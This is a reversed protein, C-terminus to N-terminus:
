KVPPVYAWVRVYDIIFYDPLVATVIPGEGWADPGSGFNGIEESLIIHAPARGVGGSTTRWTLVNDTFFEYRDPYWDVRFVHWGGDNLNRGATKQSDSQHAAGYGDWHLAHQICDTEWAKEMVDIETGDKGSGDVRSVTDPLLWFACWHGHEKPFKVRAEFRGFAQAFLIPQGHDSTSVWGASWSPSSADGEGITRIVLAGNELYANEKKYNRRWPTEPWYKDHRDIVYWKSADVAPGDFEDSFTLPGFMGGAQPGPDVTVCAVASSFCALLLACKPHRFPKKV